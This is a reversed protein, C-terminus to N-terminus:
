LESNPLQMAYRVIEISFFRAEFKLAGFNDNFRPIRHMCFLLTYLFVRLHFLSLFMEYQM